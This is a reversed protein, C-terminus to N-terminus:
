SHNDNRIKIDKIKLQPFSKGDRTMQDVSFVMDFTTRPVILKSLFNGLDFGISDFVKDCGKQRVSMLLHNNGVIRPNNSVEVEEALFSPRMNGPGFPAFQNVIRLFKPTFEAFRAKSDIEIEPFLENHNIKEKVIRNFTEKFEEFKDLEVALGAAAEHGGFHILLDECEKLAEYINFNTISRASGKAVGDITTLMITPRYYKEVLRSAVIGIVGPHWNDGHLVIALEEDFNITSNVKSIAEALTDEDIKRREFNDSELVSALETARKEDQTTMLEVAVKADGLRGVANIRPALTFVIQVSSLNGASVHSTKLLAKVGARPNENILRLGE